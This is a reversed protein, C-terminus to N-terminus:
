SYDREGFLATGVRVITAGEEVAIDYDATMGMSLHVFQEAASEDHDSLWGKLEDFVERMTRFRGRTVDEPEGYPPITMIGRVVLDPYNRALKLLDLADGPAVGGKNPDDGVNVQLLVDVPEDSRRNLKKMLSKRDASHVLHVRDVVVKAKNSQLHGIFHWRVDDAMRPVKGEWEQAYSEGFDRVGADYLVQMASVPHTKSVAVLTVDSADRGAREAAADMRARVDHLRAKLDEPEYSM